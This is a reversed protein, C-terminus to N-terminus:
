IRDSGGRDSEGGGSDPLKGRRESDNDVEMKGTAPDGGSRHEALKIRGNQEPRATRWHAQHESPSPSRICMPVLQPATSYRGTIPGDRWTGATTATTSM